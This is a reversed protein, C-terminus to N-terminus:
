DPPRPFPSRHCTLSLLVRRGEVGIEVFSETTVRCIRAQPIQADMETGTHCVAQQM